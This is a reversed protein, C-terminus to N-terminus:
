GAEESLDRVLSYGPHSPITGQKVAFGGVLIRAKRALKSRQIASVLELVSELQEPLSVSLGLTGAGTRELIELVETPRLGPALIESTKGQEGFWLAAVELGLSHQNGGAGMLILEPRVTTPTPSPPHLRAAVAAVLRQCLATFRHEDAITIKCRAWLEGIDHLLPAVLGVLVDVRRVGLAAARDILSSALPLDGSRGAKWLGHQIEQLSRALEIKDELVEFGLQACHACMGHTIDHQEFPPLEGMFQQCHVCWRIM